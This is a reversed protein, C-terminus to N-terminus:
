REASETNDSPSVDAPEHVPPLATIPYKLIKNSNFIATKGEQLTRLVQEKEEANRVSPLLLMNNLTSINLGNAKLTAACSTLKVAERYAKELDDGGLDFAHKQMLHRLTNSSFDDSIGCMPCTEYATTMLRPRFTRRPGEGPMLSQTPENPKAM